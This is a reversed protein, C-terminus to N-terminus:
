SQGPPHVQLWQTLLEITRGLIEFSEWGQSAGAAFIAAGKVYDDKYMEGDYWILQDM